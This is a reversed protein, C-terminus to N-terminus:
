EQEQDLLLSTAHEPEDTAQAPRNGQAVGKAPDDQEEEEHKPTENHGPRSERHPPAPTIPETVQTVRHVGNSDIFECSRSPM